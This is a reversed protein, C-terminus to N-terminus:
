DWGAQLFVVIGYAGGATTSVGTSGDWTLDSGLQGDGVSLDALVAGTTGVNPGVNAVATLYMVNTSDLSVIAVVVLFDFSDNSDPILNIVADLGSFIPGPQYSCVPVSLTATVSGRVGGNGGVLPLAGQSRLNGYSGGTIVHLSYDSSLGGAGAPGPPGQPGQMGVAVLNIAVM